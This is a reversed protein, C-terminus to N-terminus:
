FLFDVKKFNLEHHVFHHADLLEFRASLRSRGIVIRREVLSVLRDEVLGGIEVPRREGPLPLNKAIKIKM